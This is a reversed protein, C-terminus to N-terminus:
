CFINSRPRVCNHIASTLGRNVIRDHEGSQNSQRGGSSCGRRRSILGHRWCSLPAPLCKGASDSSALLDGQGVIVARVIRVRQLQEVHQRLVAHACREEHDSAVHLLAGINRARHRLCSVDDAVVRERMRQQDEFRFRLRALLQKVAMPRQLVGDALM